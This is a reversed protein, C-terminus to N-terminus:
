RDGEDCRDAVYDPFSFLPLCACDARFWAWLVATQERTLVRTDYCRDGPPMLALCRATVEPCTM